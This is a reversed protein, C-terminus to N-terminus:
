VALSEHIIQFLKGPEFQEHLQISIEHIAKLKQNQIIQSKVSENYEFLLSSVHVIAAFAELEEATFSERINGVVIGGLLHDNGYFPANYISKVGAFKQIMRAAQSPM